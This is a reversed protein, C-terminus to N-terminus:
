ANPSLRKITLTEAARNRVHAIRCVRSVVSATDIFRASDQLGM